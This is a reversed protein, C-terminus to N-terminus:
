FLFPIGLRPGFYWWAFLLIGVWLAAKFLAGVVKIAAYIAVALVLIGVWSM